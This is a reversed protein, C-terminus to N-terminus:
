QAMVTQMLLVMMLMLVSKMLHPPKLVLAKITPQKLMMM